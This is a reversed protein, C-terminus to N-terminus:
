PRIQATAKGIGNAGRTVSANKGKLDFVKSIDMISNKITLKVICQQESHM